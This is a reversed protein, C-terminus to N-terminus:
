RGDKLERIEYKIDKFCRLFRYLMADSEYKEKLESIDVDPVGYWIPRIEDKLFKINIDPNNAKIYAILNLSYLRQEQQEM